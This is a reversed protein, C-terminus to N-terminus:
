SLYYLATPQQMVVPKASSFFFSIKNYVSSIYFVERRRLVSLCLVSHCTVVQRYLSFIKKFLVLVWPSIHLILHLM